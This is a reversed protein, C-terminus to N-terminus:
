TSSSIFFLLLAILVLMMGVYIKRDGLYFIEMYENPISRKEVVLENMITKWTSAFRMMIDFLSLNYFISDQFLEKNKQDVVRGVLNLVNEEKAMLREYITDKTADENKLDKLMSKYEGYAKDVTAM